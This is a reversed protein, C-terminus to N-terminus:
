NKCNPKDFAELVAERLVLCAPEGPTMATHCTSPRQKYIACWVKKLPSGRLLACACLSLGKLTGVKVKLPRTRLAAPCDVNAIRCLRQLPSFYVIARCYRKPLKEIDSDSLNCYVDQWQWSVCCLGCSTCSPVKDKM